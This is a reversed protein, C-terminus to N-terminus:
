QVAVVSEPAWSGSALGWSRMWEYTEALRQRPYPTVHIYRVFDASLEGPSLQGKAPEVLHGRYADPSANIRDVAENIADLYRQQVLPGLSAWECVNYVDSEGQEFLSENLRAFADRETRPRDDYTASFHVDLGHRAFIGEEVAVIAPLDFVRGNPALALSAAM